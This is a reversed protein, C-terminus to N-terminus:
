QFYIAFNLVHSPQMNNHAGSGGTLSTPASLNQLIAAQPTGPAATPIGLTLSYQHDHSPMEAITLTHAEEGFSAAVLRNTLGTGQGAGVISRSRLDPTHFHDADDIYATALASYLSPYDTRLHTAGDCPLTGSPANTTAYVVIQGIMSCDEIADYMEAFAESVDEPSAGGSDEFNSSYRLEDLCGYFISLWEINRPIFVRRCYFETPADVSPTLWRGRTM